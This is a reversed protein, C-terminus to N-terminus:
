RKGYEAEVFVREGKFKKAHLDAVSARVRESHDAM